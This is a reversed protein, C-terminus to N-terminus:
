KGAEIDKVDIIVPVISDSLAHTEPIRLCREEERIAAEWEAPESPGDQEVDNLFYLMILFAPLGKLERFWYLHALRNSYQFYPSKFWDVSQDAGLFRQTEKLSHTIKEISKANEAGSGSSRM